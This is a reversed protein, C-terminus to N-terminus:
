AHYFNWISCVTACTVPLIAKNTHSSFLLYIKENKTYTCSFLIQLWSEELLMRKIYRCIFLLFNSIYAIDWKCSLWNCRSRYMKYLKVRNSILHARTVQLACSQHKTNPCDQRYDTHFNACYTVVLLALYENRQGPYIYQHEGARQLVQNWKINMTRYM